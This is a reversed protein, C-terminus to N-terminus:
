AASQGTRARAWSWVVAAGFMATLVLVMSPGAQWNFEISALFGGLLGAVGAGVSLGVVTWLRDSLRLAIAGPLVLLATALIVGALKMATVVALTLLIMLTLKM